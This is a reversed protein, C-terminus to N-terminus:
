SIELSTSYSGTGWPTDFGRCTSTPLEFKTLYIWINWSQVTVNKIGRSACPWVAGWHFARLYPLYPELFRLHPLVRLMQWSTKFLSLKSCFHPRTSEWVCVLPSQNILYSYFCDPFILMKVLNYHWRVEMNKLSSLSFTIHMLSLNFCLGLYFGYSKPNMLISLIKSIM